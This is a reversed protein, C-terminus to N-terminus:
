LRAIRFAYDKGPQVWVRLEGNDTVTMPDAYGASFMQKYGYPDDQLVENGTPM